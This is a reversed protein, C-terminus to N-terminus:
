GVLVAEGYVERAPPGFLNAPTSGAEPPLKFLTMTKGNNCSAYMEFAPYIEVRGKFWVLAQKRDANVKITFTGKYDLNPSLRLDGLKLCANKSAADLDLDISLEGDDSKQIRLPSFNM